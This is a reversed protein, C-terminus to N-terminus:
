SSSSPLLFNKGNKSSFILVSALFVVGLKNKSRPQPFPNKHSYAVLNKLLTIPISM